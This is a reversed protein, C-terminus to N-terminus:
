IYYKQNVELVLIKRERFSAEQTTSNTIFSFLCVTTFTTYGRIFKCTTFNKIINDAPRWVLASRLIYEIWIVLMVSLSPACGKLCLIFLFHQLCFTFALAPVYTVHRCLLFYFRDKARIFSTNSVFYPNWLVM